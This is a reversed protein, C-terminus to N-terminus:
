AESVEAHSTKARDAAHLIYAGARIAARRLPYRLLCVVQRTTSNCRRRMLLASTECCILLVHTCFTMHKTPRGKALFTLACTAAGFPPWAKASNWMPEGVYRSHTEWLLHKHKGLLLENSERRPDDTLIPVICLLNAHGRRWSSVCLDLLTVM